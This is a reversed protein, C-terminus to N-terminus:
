FHMNTQYLKLISFVPCLFSINEMCVSSFEWMKSGSIKQIKGMKQWSSKMKSFTVSRKPIDMQHSIEEFTHILSAWFHYHNWISSISDVSLIRLIFHSSFYYLFVQVSILSTIFKRENRWTFQKKFSCICKNMLFITRECEYFKNESLPNKHVKM